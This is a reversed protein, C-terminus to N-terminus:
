QGIDVTLGFSKIMEGVAEVRKESPAEVGELCYTRGLKEYKAVGWEHYALVSVKEVTCKTAFASFAEINKQSDNM